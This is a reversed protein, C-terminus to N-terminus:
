HSAGLRAPCPNPHHTTSMPIQLSDIYYKDEMIANIRELCSIMDLKTRRVEEGPHGFARLLLQAQLWEESVDEVGRRTNILKQKIEKELELCFHNIQM